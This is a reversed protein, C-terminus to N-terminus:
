HVWRRRAQRKRDDDHTATVFAVLVDLFLHSFILLRLGPTNSACNVGQRLHRLRSGLSPYKAGIGRTAICM